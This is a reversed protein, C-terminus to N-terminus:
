LRILYDFKIIRMDSLSSFYNTPKNGVKQGQVYVTLFDFLYETNVTNESVNVPSM